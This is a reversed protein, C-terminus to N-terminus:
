PLPDIKGPPQLNKAKEWALRLDRQHLAAWEAVLGMARPSLGGSIVSFTDITILAEQEGYIAHFHAPLHDDFYMRIIIGYFRCIEPM